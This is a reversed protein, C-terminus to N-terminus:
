LFVLWTDPDHLLVCGWTAVGACSWLGRAFVVCAPARGPCHRGAPRSCVATAKPICLSWALLLHLIVELDVAVRQGAAVRQGTICPM